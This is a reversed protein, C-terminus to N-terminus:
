YICSANLFHIYPCKVNVYNFLFDYSVIYCWCKPLSFFNVIWFWMIQIYSKLSGSHLLHSSHQEPNNCLSYYNRVSTERCVIPLLNGSARYYSLFTFNECLKFGMKKTKLVKFYFPKVTFDRFIMNWVIRLISTHLIWTWLIGKEKAHCRHVASLTSLM